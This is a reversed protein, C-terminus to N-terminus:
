KLFVLLIEFYIRKLNRIIELNLYIQFTIFYIFYFAKSNLVRISKNDM